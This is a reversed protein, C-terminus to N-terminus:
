LVPGCRLLDSMATLRTSTGYFNLPDGNHPRFPPPSDPAEPYESPAVHLDARIHVLEEGVGAHDAAQVNHKDYTFTYTVGWKLRIQVGPPNWRPVADLKLRIHDYSDGPAHKACKWQYSPVAWLSKESPGTESIQSIFGGRSFMIGLGLYRSPYYNYNTIVPSLNTVGYVASTHPLTPGWEGKGVHLHYQQTLPASM